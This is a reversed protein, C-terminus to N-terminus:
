GAGDVEQDHPIFLTGEVGRQVLEVGGNSLAVAGQTTRVSTAPRRAGTARAVVDVYGVFQPVLSRRVRDFLLISRDDFVGTGNDVWANVAGVDAMRLKGDSETPMDIMVLGHRAPERHGSAAVSEVEGVFLRQGGAVDVADVAVLSGHEVAYVFLGSDALASVM